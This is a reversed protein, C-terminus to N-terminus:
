ARERDTLKLLASEASQVRGALWSQTAGCMQRVRALVWDSNLMTDSDLEEAVDGPPVSHAAPGM